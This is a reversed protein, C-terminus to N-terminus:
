RELVSEDIFYKDVKGNEECNDSSNSVFSSNLCASMPVPLTNNPNVFATELPIWMLSGFGYGSYDIHLKIITNCRKSKWSIPQQIRVINPINMSQVSFSM